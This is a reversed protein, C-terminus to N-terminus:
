HAKKWQEYEGLRLAAPKADEIKKVIEEISCDGMDRGRDPSIVKVTTHRYLQSVLKIEAKVGAADRDMWVYVVEFSRLLDIQADGVKAGFTSVVNPLDLSVARAVSMPSEVVCVRPYHSAFGLNYLTESKPFGPSNKYKADLDETTLGPIVRKQWGVLNGKVFHPFVIRGVTPDFGLSLKGQADKSIGRQEWYPHHQLWKDIVRFDYRPLNVTYSASTEALIKEVMKRAEQNGLAEGILYDSADSFAEGFSEKGELKMVLHILDGAWGGAYCVYLKKELNCSASPNRDGNTHHPDVRDLLCSHVIETTGDGGPQESCNQAGYHELLARADLKNLYQKYMEKQVIDQLGIKM